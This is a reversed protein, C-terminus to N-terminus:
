ALNLTAFLVFFALGFSLSRQNIWMMGRSVKDRWGPEEVETRGGVLLNEVYIAIRNMDALCGSLSSIFAAYAVYLLYDHGPNPPLFVETVTPAGVLVGASLTAQLRRTEFRLKLGEVRPEVTAEQLDETATAMEEFAAEEKARAVRLEDDSERLRREVEELLRAQSEADSGGAEARAKAGKLMVVLETDVNRLRQLCDRERAAGELSERATTAKELARKSRALANDPGNEGAGGNPVETM